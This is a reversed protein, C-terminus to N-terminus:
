KLKNPHLSRLSYLNPFRQSRRDGPRCKFGPGRLYSAPSYIVRGRREASGTRLWSFGNWVIYKLNIKINKNADRDLDEM